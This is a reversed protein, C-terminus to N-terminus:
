ASYQRLVILIGKFLLGATVHLIGYPMLKFSCHIKKKETLHENSINELLVIVVLSPM